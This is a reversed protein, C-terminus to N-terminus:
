CAALARAAFDERTREDLFRQLCVELSPLFTGRESALASYRPRRAVCPRIRPAVIMDRPHGTLDALTAALDKWTVPDPNSIHWLGSEGDVLLDLCVAVLSPVYTPTVMQSDDAEVPNGCRWQTLANALFNYDDWPGFFASTRIVLASPLVCLVRREAEAKSRGYANLPAPADREVYPSIKEGGFVLDSSFTLFRAGYLRCVEALNAPGEVNERFCRALDREADDVRVYGAANVVAWPQYREFTRRVSRIDAIDLEERGLVVTAIGHHECLRAFASGLTGTRGTILLPQADRRARETGALPFDDRAACERTALECDGDVQALPSDEQLARETEGFAIVRSARRWWGHQALLPHEFRQGRGLASLMDVLATARPMRGPNRLDFAGSEYYGDDRTVLSNWDFSGFLAWATVAVVDAGASRAVNAGSWAEDLWRLQDARTGDMHVETLAVPRGYREWALQLTRAHGAIASDAVRVAEIDAYRHRGNGGHLHAPYRDLREDLHRDSTVYYNLGVVDPPCPEAQLQELVRPDVDDLIWRIPHECGFRGFLLDYSLWRRENEFDAQYRLAATSSITGLDETQVLRASPHIERIARMSLAIGRIQHVLARAFSAPDKSHPYWLGYLASFRATTLPENIPTYADVWPYREGVAAAFAALKAPFMPDLLSTHGPGSGHHLLGVIPRVGLERLRELRRDTWSWDAAALNGDPAVLEWLVPQRLATVGLAAIVDLDTERTDHGSRAIQNLWRDGIRNVTCEVGAWLQIPGATPIRSDARM